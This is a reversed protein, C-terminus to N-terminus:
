GLLEAKHFNSEVFFCIHNMPWQVEFHHRPLMYPNTKGPIISGRFAGFCAKYGAKQIVSIVTQNVDTRKGFPWSFYNCQIKHKKELDKRAGIIESELEDIKSLHALKPHTRTHAGIDFNANSIVHIDKWSAMEIVGKYSTKKLCFTKAKNFDADIFNTPVFFLAPVKQEYLIPFANQVINKFGDDFSLHYYRGDLHDKGKAISVLSDTDIFDGTNKLQSIITSFQNRQDDFVYHCYLCRLCNKKSPKIISALSSIVTNRMTWRVTEYISRPKFVANESYKEYKGSV